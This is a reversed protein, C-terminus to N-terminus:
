GCGGCDYSGSEAWDLEIATILRIEPMMLQNKSGIMPPIM